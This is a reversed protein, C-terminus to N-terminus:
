GLGNGLNREGLEVMLYPMRDIHLIRRGIRDYSLKPTHQYVLGEM